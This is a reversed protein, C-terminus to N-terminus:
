FYQIEHMGKVANIKITYNSCINVNIRTTSQFIDMGAVTLYHKPSMQSQGTETDVKCFLTHTGPTNFQRKYTKFKGKYLKTTSDVFMFEKVQDGQYICEMKLITGTLITKTNPHLKLEPNGVSVSVINHSICPVKDYTYSLAQRCIHHARSTQKCVAVLINGM